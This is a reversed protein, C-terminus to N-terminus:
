KKLVMIEYMGIDDQSTSPAPSRPQYVEAQVVILKLQNEAVVHETLKRKKKNEDSSNPEGLDEINEINLIREAM